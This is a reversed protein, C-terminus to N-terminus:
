IQIKGKKKKKTRKIGGDVTQHVLPAPLPRVRM